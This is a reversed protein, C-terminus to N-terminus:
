NTMPLNVTFTSGKGLESKVKINGKHAVTIVKAIALGLGSGGSSRSRDSNVRYFRDFIMQQEDLTIGIGTDKVELIADNKHIKLTLSIDGEAPTYQIANAILNSFLRLLQDEDGMVYLDKDVLIFSNLKLSSMNALASYEEVLDEILVNLCCAQKKTTITKQELRSLLLLDQILEVLRNNQHKVSALVNRTNESFLEDNELIIEIRANVAALPTRLEHSVDSTFNQMQQYSKEIPQIAVSALRWSSFIVLILTVPFGLALIFKFALLRNDLEKLSSGVQIYGWIQNDQTHLPLSKQHYRVGQLDKLTQWEQIEIIPPLEEKTFGAVAILEQSTNVFRIYYQKNKYVTNLLGHESHVLQIHNPIKITSCNSESSCIHPLISQIIPELKAPKKLHPEIVNHLTGTISELERDLSLLYARIMVQYVTIGCLGLILGMIVTYWTVLQLRTKNILSAQM